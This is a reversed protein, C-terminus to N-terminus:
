LKSFNFLSRISKNSWSTAFIIKRISKNSRIM